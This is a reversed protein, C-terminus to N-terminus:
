GNNIRNELDLLSNIDKGKKDPKVQNDYKINDKKIPEIPPSFAERQKTLKDLEAQIGIYTDQEDQTIHINERGTLENIIVRAKRFRGIKMAKTRRFWNKFAVIVLPEKDPHEFYNCIVAAQQNLARVEKSILKYWGPGPRIDKYAPLFKARWYVVFEAVLQPWTIKSGPDMISPYKAQWTHNYPLVKWDIETKM